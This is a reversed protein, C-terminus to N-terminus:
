RTNARISRSNSRIIGARSGAFNQCKALADNVVDYAILPEGQALIKEAFSRYKGPSRLWQDVNRARWISTLRSLTM